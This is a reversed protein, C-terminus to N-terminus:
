GSRFLVDELALKRVHWMELEKGDIKLRCEGKENLTPTAKFKTKGEGDSIEIASQTLVLSVSARILLGNEIAHSVGIRNNKINIQYGSDNTLERRKEVDHQLQAKLEEFISSLSCSSRASVWDFDAM